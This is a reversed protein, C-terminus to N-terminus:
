TSIILKWVKLIIQKSRISIGLIPKNYKGYPLVLNLIWSIDLRSAVSERYTYRYSYLVISILWQSIGAAVRFDPQLNQHNATPYAKDVQLNSQEGPLEDYPLYGDLR